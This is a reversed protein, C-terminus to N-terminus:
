RCKKPIIEIFEIKKSNLNVIVQRSNYYLCGCDIIIENKYSPIIPSGLVLYLNIIIISEKKKNICGIYQRDYKKFEEKTLKLKLLKETKAIQEFSPTFREKFLSDQIFDSIKEKPFITQILTDTEITISPIECPSNNDEILKVIKFFRLPLICGNDEIKSQEYGIKFTYYEPGTCGGRSNKLLYNKTSDILNIITNIFENSKEVEFFLSDNSHIRCLSKKHNLYTIEIKGSYIDEGLYCDFGSHEMSVFKLKSIDLQQTYSIITNLILFATFLLKMKEYNDSVTQSHKLATKTVTSQWDVV